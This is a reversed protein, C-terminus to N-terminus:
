AQKKVAMHWHSLINDKKNELGFNLFWIISSQLVSM